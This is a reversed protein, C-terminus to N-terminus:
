KEGPFGFACICDVVEAFHQLMNGPVQQLLHLATIRHSHSAQKKKKGSWDGDSMEEGFGQTPSSEQLHAVTGLGEQGQARVEDARVRQEAHAM